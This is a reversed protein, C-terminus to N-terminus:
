NNLTQNQFFYNWWKVPNPQYDHKIQEQLVAVFEQDGPQGSREKEEPVIIIKEGEKKLNLKTRAVEEVFDNTKFYDILGGLEQNRGSLGSIQEELGRIEKELDRRNIIERASNVSFFLLIGMSVLFLAKSAL